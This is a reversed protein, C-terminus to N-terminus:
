SEMHKLYPRLHSFELQGTTRKDLQKRYLALSLLSSGLESSSIPTTM